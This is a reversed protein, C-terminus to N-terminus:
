RHLVSTLASAATVVTLLLLCPLSSCVGLRHHHDSLCVYNIPLLQPFTTNAHIFFRSLWVLEKWDFCFMPELVWLLVRSCWGLQMGSCLPQLNWVIQIYFQSDPCTGLFCKQIWASVPHFPVVFWLVPHSHYSKPYVQFCKWVSVTGLCAAEWTKQFPSSLLPSCAMRPSFALWFCHNWSIIFLLMLVGKRMDARYRLDGVLFPLILVCMWFIGAGQPLRVWARHLSFPNPSKCQALSWVWTSPISFAYESWTAPVPWRASGKALRM